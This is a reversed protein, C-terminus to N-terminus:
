GSSGINWMHNSLLSYLFHLVTLFLFPKFITSFDVHKFIGRKRKTCQTSHNASQSASLSDSQVASNLPRTRIYNQLLKAIPTECVCTLDYCQVKMRRRAGRWLVHRLHIQSLDSLVQQLAAVCLLHAEVRETDAAAGSVNRLPPPPYNNCHHRHDTHVHTFPEPEHPLQSSHNGRLVPEQQSLGAMLRGTSSYSQSMIIIQHSFMHDVCWSEYESFIWHRFTQHTICHGKYLVNWVCLVLTSHLSM